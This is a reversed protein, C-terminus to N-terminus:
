NTEAIAHGILKLLPFTMVLRAKKSINSYLALNKAGKLMSNVFFDTFNETDLSKLKHAINLDSL